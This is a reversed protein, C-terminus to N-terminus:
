PVTYVADLIKDEVKTGSPFDIDLKLSEADTIPQASNVKAETTTWRVIMPFWIGNGINKYDLLTCTQVSDPWSTETRRPCYGITPDLWVIYKEDGKNIEVQWCDHGDIQKKERSVTGQSVVDVLYGMHLLCLVPDPIGAYNLPMGAIDTSILGSKEGGESVFRRGISRKRDFYSFSYDGNREARIYQIDATRIYEYDYVDTDDSHSVSFSIRVPATQQQDNLAAAILAASPPGGATGVRVFTLIFLGVLAAIMTLATFISLTAGSLIRKM